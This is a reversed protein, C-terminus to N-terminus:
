KWYIENARHRRDYANLGEGLVGRLNFDDYLTTHTYDVFTTPVVLEGGDRVVSSVATYVHKHRSDWVSAGVVPVTQATPPVAHLAEISRETYEQCFMGTQEREMIAEFTVPTRFYRRVDYTGMLLNFYVAGALYRPVDYDTRERFPEVLGEVVAEPDAPDVDAFAAVTAPDVGTSRGRALDVTYPRPRAGEVREFFSEYPLFDFAYEGARVDRLDARLQAVPGGDLGLEDELARAEAVTATTLDMPERTADGSPVRLVDDDVVLEHGGAAVTAEGRLFREGAVAALDQDVLNTGVVVGYGLLSNDAAKAGAVAATGAGLLKLAERRGVDIDALDERRGPLM